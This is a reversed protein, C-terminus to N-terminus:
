AGVSDVAVPEATSNHSELVVQGREILYFRNAVEGERFITQGAAFHVVMACDSLLALHPKRMGALFPHLAVRTLMPESETKMKLSRNPAKRYKQSVFNM